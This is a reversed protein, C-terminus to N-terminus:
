AAVNDPEAQAGERHQRRAALVFIQCVGTCRAILEKDRLWDHIGKNGHFMNNRVRHAVFVSMERIRSASLSDFPLGLCNTVAARAEKSTSATPALREFQSSESYREHFWRAADTLQLAEEESIEPLQESKCHKRAEFYGACCKSEFLSWAVLFHLAEHSRLVAKATFQDQGLVQGLWDEFSNM